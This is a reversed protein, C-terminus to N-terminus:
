KSLSPVTKNCPFIIKRAHEENTWLLLLGSFLFFPRKQPNKQSTDVGWDNALLINVGIFIDM